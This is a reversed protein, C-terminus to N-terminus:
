RARYSTERAGDRKVREVGDLRSYLHSMYMGGCRSILRCVGFLRRKKRSFSYQLRLDKTQKNFGDRVREGGFKACAATSFSPFRLCVHICTQLLSTRRTTSEVRGRRYFFRGDGTMTDHQDVRSTRRKHPPTAADFSMVGEFWWGGNQRGGWIYLFMYPM